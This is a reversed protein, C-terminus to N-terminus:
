IKGGAHDRRWAHVAIRLLSHCVKAAVLNEDLVDLSGNGTACLRAYGVLIDILPRIRTASASSALVLCLERFAETDAGCQLSDGARHNDVFNSFSDLMSSVGRLTHAEM